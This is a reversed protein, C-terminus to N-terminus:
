HYVSIYFILIRTANLGLQCFVFFVLIRFARTDSFDPYGFFATVLFVRTRFLGSFSSNKSYKPKELLRTKRTGPIKPYDPKESLRIKRTAPIKRTGPNKPTRYRNKVSVSISGPYWFIILVGLIYVSKYGLAVEQPLLATQQKYDQLHKSKTHM